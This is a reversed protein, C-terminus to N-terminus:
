FQCDLTICFRRKEELYIIEAFGRFIAVMYEMDKLNAYRLGASPIFSIQGLLRGFVWHASGRHM